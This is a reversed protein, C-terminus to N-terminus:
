PSAREGGRIARRYTVVGVGLGSIAQVTPGLVGAPDPAGALSLAIVGLKMLIISAACAAVAILLALFEDM